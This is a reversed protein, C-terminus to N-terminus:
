ASPQHRWTNGNLPTDDTDEPCDEDALIVLFNQNFLSSGVDVYNLPHEENSMESPVTLHERYPTYRCIRYTDADDDDPDLIPIGGIYSRGSWTPLVDVPVACNYIVYSIASTSEFCERNDDAVVVPLTQNVYVQTGSLRTDTTLEPNPNSGLSFRVYGSLLRGAFDTCAPSCVQVIFGTSNDFIWRVGTSGPPSFQSRTPDGEVNTSGPPVGPHRGGPSRLVSGDGPVALSGALTPAVGFLNSALRIRQDQGARDTWAVEVLVTKFRPDTSEPPVTLTVAYTANLGAVEDADDDIDDYYVIGEAVGSLAEFGRWREMYAQGIRVAEARQKAIDGNIRLTAQVGLVALTGFSMVILAVLAEVLSIGRQRRDAARPMM